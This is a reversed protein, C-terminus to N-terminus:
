SIILQKISMNQGNFEFCDPNNLFEYIATCDRQSIARIKEDKVFVRFEM